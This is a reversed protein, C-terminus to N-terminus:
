KASPVSEAHLQQLKKQLSQLEQQEQQLQTQLEAWQEDLPQRKERLSQLQPGSLKTKLGEHEARTEDQPLTQELAALQRQIRLEAEALQAREPQLRQIERALQRIKWEPLTIGQQLMEARLNRIEAQFQQRLATVEPSINQTAGNQARSFPVLIVVALLCCLLLWCSAKKM